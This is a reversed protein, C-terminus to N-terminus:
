SGSSRRRAPSAAPTISDSLEYRILPQASNVLNTVLVNASPERPKFPLL